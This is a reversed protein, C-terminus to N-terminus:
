AICDIVQASTIQAFTETDTDGSLVVIPISRLAIDQELEALLDLGQKAGQMIIDTVILDPHHQRVLDLAEPGNRAEVVKHGAETFVSSAIARITSVDDVVLVCKQESHGLDKLRRSLMPRVKKESHKLFSLITKLFYTKM